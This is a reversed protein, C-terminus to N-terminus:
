RNLNGQFTHTVKIFYYYTSMFLHSFLHIPNGLYQNSWHNNLNNIILGKENNIQIKRGTLIELLWKKKIIKYENEKEPKWNKM